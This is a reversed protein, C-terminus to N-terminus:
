SKRIITQPSVGYIRKYARSFHSLDCFGYSMAADTVNRATGEVLACHSAELRRQWVWRMPTTGHAAFVRALTRTSVHQSNALTEVDLSPDGLHQEAYAIAREYLASQATYPRTTGSTQVDVTAALLDLLSSVARTGARPLQSLADSRAIEKIMSGLVRTIDLGEGLRTAVLKDAYPVRHLLLARPISMIFVSDPTLTFSFPRAADYLVIDGTRQVVSRGNQTLHGYGSDMYALWYDDIPRTRLYHADRDWRHEPASMESISLAGVTRGSLTADFRQRHDSNSAAPICHRCVEDKWYEFRQEPTVDM